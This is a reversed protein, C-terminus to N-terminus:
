GAAGDEPAEDQEHDLVPAVDTMVRRAPVRAATADLRGRVAAAVKGVVAREPPSMESWRTRLEALGDAARDLAERAAEHAGEEISAEATSVEVGADAAIKLLEDM